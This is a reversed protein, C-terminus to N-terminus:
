RAFELYNWPLLKRDRTISKLATLAPNNTRATDERLKSLAFLFASLGKLGLRVIARLLWNINYGAASLVANLADGIADKLFCRDMRHDQKLHGITPEIAQRRKLLKWQPKSLSKAKGRHIIEM